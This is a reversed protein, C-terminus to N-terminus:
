RLIYLKGFGKTFAKDASTARNRITEGNQKIIVKYLYVGNALQDGFEDHGNWAFESINNGIQISGLENQTIERVIRGSVTMIQIKIEQPIDAGTLTFIFRTSTSFPNPYPYFNTIASENIIEFSILYPETGSQNGSADAAEVRLTYQGDELRQPKYEVRFDEGQSTSAVWQIENSSFAVRKFVCNDCEQKLFINMNTTDTSNIYPNEDRLRITILPTPSIIDGNLIYHGDFLVDLLPNRNDRDVNVFGRLDLTNNEYFLEPEIRPNVTLNFDNMGVNNRSNITINFKTTDGPAPKEIKFENATTRRDDLNFLAQRVLLSDKFQQKSINKFGYTREVIQGEQISVKSINDPETIVIGEAVPEYFVQWRVLQPPTLNVDDSNKFDLKLYPYLDANILSLDFPFINIGSYLISENGASTLGIVDFSFNDTVPTELVNAFAIFSGWQAAPGVLTSSMNGTSFVGSFNTNLQLQQETEPVISTRLETAAGASAGKKGLLIYPEGNQVAALNAALAGIEELKSRVNASWNAIQPDGITFLVVTDGANVNNIYKIIDDGGTELENFRFSNIVKPQRGCTKPDNFESPVSAYPIATNKDFAILNVTNDRCTFLNNIIYETNDIRVSVDTNIALNDAGFTTIDLSRYTRLYDFAKLSENRELGNIINDDLQSFVSQSWGEPSDKIYIFSSVVWEDSEGVDVQTFKTRWFYVISDNAPIDPLLNLIWNALLKATASKQQRFPSNFTKVTDIEFLFERTDELINTAQALLEVPQQSVISFDNPYINKTGFLPVFFEFSATNNSENLEPITFNADLQIDFKNNGFGNETGKTISFTLTDLYRIPPFISDYVLVSNDSLTRTIAVSISDSRTRGFNRVIMKIAFSDSEATVPNSNFSEIFLDNGTIGYDPVEPGFLNVAPDGLLIMQQVQTINNPTASSVALYRKTVEQQILSIPKSIFTSDGFGVEYFFDTYRKLNSVFGFSSHAIFGIAGKNEALIWDEGFLIDAKFFQGANCGNILFMPYKGANNYGFVPDTAFGIDIDTINPASHGYFTVLSVGKNVQDAVNILEITSGSTKAVTQVKGGLYVDEAVSAFGAMFSRFNILEAASIGGSLHLIEKHWLDDFALSESEIVKNLYTIVHASTRAPLRGVPVGPGYDAGNLGATYQIDSGPNGASPVLDKVQYTVGNKTVNIFGNPNRHFNVSPDLGKGILFLFKPDGNDVLYRMFDFIALPGKLGYNYQNYLMDMDVVLTDYGGGAVSARYGGYSKVPNASGLAPQMLQNHSIIIYDHASANINRFQARKIVPTNFSAANALIKRESITGNVIASIGTGSVNSGIRIINDVDTIDYLQTQAPTNTIEIYNKNFPDAKLTFKKTAVSQMNFNEPYFVRIYSTSIRDNGGSVGLATVRVTMAGAGTIDSWLLPSTFIKAEYDNFQVTGLSRLSTSNQGVSISVDHSLNDVGLLLVELSPVGDPQVGGTIENLVFDASQNEQISASTWGEAYDFYSYKTLDDTSYGQGASYRSINLLRIEQIHSTVATLGGTNNESYSAMRKGNTPNLYWTLFYASSDSHLSYFQHPQAAAPQYLREDATGDNRQGYFEIFDTTNFVADSQGQVFIAQENGKYFLQLRRPDISNIPVGANTLDTYSLRYIGDQSLSVKYYQKNFDIWESGYPQSTGQIAICTSAIFLIINLNRIM